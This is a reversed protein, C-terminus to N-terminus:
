SLLDVSVLVDCGHAGPVRPLAHRRVAGGRWEGRGAALSALHACPSPCADACVRKRAELIQAGACTAAAPLDTALLLADLGFRYAGRGAGQRLRLRGSVVDESYAPEPAAAEAGAVSAPAACPAARSGAVCRAARM